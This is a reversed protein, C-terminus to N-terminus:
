RVRVELAPHARVVSAPVEPCPHLRLESDACGDPRARQVVWERVGLDVLCASMRLLHAEGLLIPHWTTRIEHAVGSRRLLRLSTEAADGSGPRGTVRAYDAFPAKFDFGVWDALPLAELLAAPVPGGTHLGVRFGLERVQRMAAPLGSQLTPEGGSFVVGDLLGRRDRLWGAVSPWTWHAPDADASPTDSTQRRFPVLQPNHCYRCRWGCGQGFVTATMMGPWDVTSFPALGGVHFDARSPPTSAASPADGRRPTLPPRM